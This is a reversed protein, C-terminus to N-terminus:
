VNSASLYSTESLREIDKERMREKQRERNKNRM